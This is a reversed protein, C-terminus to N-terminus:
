FTFPLRLVLGLGIEPDDPLTPQQGIQVPRFPLKLLDRHWRQLLTPSDVLKPLFVLRRKLEPIEMPFFRSRWWNAGNSTELQGLSAREPPPAFGDWRPDDLAHTPAALGLLAFALLSIPFRLKRIKVIPDRSPCGNTAVQPAM